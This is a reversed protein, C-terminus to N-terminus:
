IGTNKDNRSLYTSGHCRTPWNNSLGLWRGARAFLCVPIRNFQLAHRSQATLAPTVCLTMAPWSGCDMDQSNMSAPDLGAHRSPPMGPLPDPM